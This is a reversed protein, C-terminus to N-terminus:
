GKGLLLQQIECSVQGVSNRLINAYSLNCNHVAITSNILCYISHIACIVGKQTLLCVPHRENLSTTQSTHLSVAHADANWECEAKVHRIDSGDCRPNFPPQVKTRVASRSLPFRCGRRRCHDKGREAFIENVSYGFWRKVKKRPRGKYDTYHYEHKGWRAEM